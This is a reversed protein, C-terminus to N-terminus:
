VLRMKSQQLQLVQRRARRAQEREIRGEALITDGALLVPVRLVYADELQVSSHVDIIDISSRGFVSVVAREAEHCLPCADRSVLTLRVDLRRRPLRMRLTHM